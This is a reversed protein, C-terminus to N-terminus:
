VQVSFFKESIFKNASKATPGVIKESARKVNLMVLTPYSTISDKACVSSFEACDIATFHLNVYPKNVYSRRGKKTRTHEGNLSTIRGLTSNALSEYTKM